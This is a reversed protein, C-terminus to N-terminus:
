LREGTRYDEPVWAPERKETFAAFGERIEDSTLSMAFTMEDIVGYRSNMIRKAHSRTEPAAKLLDRAARETEAELDDHACMRAILGM